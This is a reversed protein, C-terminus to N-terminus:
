RSCSSRSRQNQYEYDCVKTVFHFTITPTGGGPAFTELHGHPVGPSHKGLLSNDDIRFQRLDDASRFVSSGPKGIEKYGNGLFQEGAQLLEDASLIVDSTINGKGSFTEAIVTDVKNIKTIGAPVYPIALAAIDAALAVNDGTVIDVVVNAVDWATDIPILGDLDILNIPDALVYEYSNYGGAFGIPDKSTWRGIEADYDRAGFRVLGTDSDYLGGAFGFPQFGPDTDLLVNGFADYDM